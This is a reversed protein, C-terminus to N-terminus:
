QGVGRRIIISPDIVGATTHFYLDPYYYHDGKDPETFTLALISNEKETTYEVCEIPESFPAYREVTVFPAVYSEGALLSIWVTVQGQTGAHAEDDIFVAEILDIQRMDAALNWLVGVSCKTDLVMGVREERSDVEHLTMITKVSVNKM